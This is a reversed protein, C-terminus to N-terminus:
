EESGELKSKLRKIKDELEEKSEEKEESKEEEDMLGQAKMIEQAKSLGKELGKKDPAMVTVKKMSEMDEGDHMMGRM